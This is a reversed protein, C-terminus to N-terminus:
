EEKNHVWVLAGGRKRSEEAAIGMLHPEISSAAATSAETKGSLYDYMEDVEHKKVKLGEAM